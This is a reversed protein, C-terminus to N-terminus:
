GAINVQCCNLHRNYNAPTKSQISEFVGATKAGDDLPGPCRGKLALVGTRIQNPSGFYIVVWNSDPQPQWFLYRGKRDNKIKSDAGWIQVPVTRARLQHFCANRTQVKRASLPGGHRWAHHSNCDPQPQWFLYRGKRDNKIKSDAGWTQVPVTRARLQHFCANRTQVKRASLPGGHRWARHSNCDPQPQWFLYRGKRDNKIKSDAGLNINMWQM